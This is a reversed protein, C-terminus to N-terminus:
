TRMPVFGCDVVTCTGKFGVGRRTYISYISPHVSPYTPRDTLRDPPVRQAGGGLLWTSEKREERRGRYGSRLVVCMRHVHYMAGKQHLREFRRTRVTSYTGRGKGQKARSGRRGVSGQGLALEVLPLFFGSPMCSVCLFGIRRQGRVATLPPLFPLLRPSSHSAMHDRYTSVVHSGVWLAGSASCSLM